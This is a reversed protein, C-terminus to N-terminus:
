MSSRYRIARVALSLLREKQPELRPDLPLFLDTVDDSPSSIAQTHSRTVSTPPSEAPWMVVLVSPVHCRSLTVDVVRLSIIWLGMKSSSFFFYLLHSIPSIVFLHQTFLIVEHKKKKQPRGLLIAVHWSRLFFFFPWNDSFIVIVSMLAFHHTLGASLALVWM